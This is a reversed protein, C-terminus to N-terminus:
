AYLRPLPGEEEELYAYAFFQRDRSEATSYYTDDELLKECFLDMTMTKGTGVGGWIYLSQITAM